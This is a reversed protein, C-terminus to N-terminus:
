AAEGGSLARRDVRRTPFYRGLADYSKGHAVMAILALELGLDRSLGGLRAMVRGWVERQAGSLREEVRQLIWLRAAVPDAFPGALPQLGLDPLVHIPGGAGGLARINM